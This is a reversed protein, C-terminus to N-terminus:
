CKRYDRPNEHRLQIAIRMNERMKATRRLNQMREMALQLAPDVRILRM